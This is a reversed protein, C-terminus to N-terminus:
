FVKLREEIYKNTVRKFDITKKKADYKYLYWEFNKKQEANMGYIAKATALGRVGTILIKRVPKGPDEQKLMGAYRLVQEVARKGGDRHKLEIVINQRKDYGKFDLRDKTRIPSYQRIVNNVKLKSLAGKNDIFEELKFESEFLDGISEVPFNYIQITSNWTVTADALDPFCYLNKKGLLNTIYQINSKGRRKYGFKGFLISTKVSRYGSNKTAAKIEALIKQENSTYSKTSRKVKPVREEEIVEESTFFEETKLLLEKWQGQGLYKLLKKM